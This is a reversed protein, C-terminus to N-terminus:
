HRLFAEQTEDILSFRNAIVKSVIKYLANRLGIFSFDTPTHQSNSKPILVIDITNIYALTSHGNLSSLVMHGINQGVLDWHEKYFGIPIGDLGPAKWSGLQWVVSRIKEVSFHNHLIEKDTSTFPIFHLNNTYHLSVGENTFLKQFYSKLIDGWNTPIPHRIVKIM